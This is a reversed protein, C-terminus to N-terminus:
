NWRKRVSLRINRGVADLGSGHMRYRKDLINDLTLAFDWGDYRAWGARIGFIGWGGTGDPDIRSDRVDRASLRDQRSAFIAWGDFSLPGSTYHLTMRGSLPPIRDAPEAVADTLFQEGWTYNLVMRAYLAETFQLDAGIEAGRIDSKTANRSQVVDRGDPTIAGTSVSTIRNKYRLMYVAGDFRFVEGSHRIGIDAQRIKESELDPNPINFRNGPREGLTGLDFVNPARFGFGANAVMQWTDALDFILGIDGSADTTTVNAASTAATAALGVDVSSVRLGGSLRSRGAVQRDANAFLAAQRVTSGDPFRSQIDTVQGSVTSEEIRQSRVTDDYFEVGAVWSGVGSARSASAVAGFLDSRNAERRREISQYNRSVRDDVIRQWALDFNWDVGLWANDLQHRAHAFIRQNPAFSFESSSPETQGFGPVLEDVRPTEPQDLYHIDLLWRRDDAPTLSLAARGSWAEYGSPGIREGGGVRRDGTALYEGSVTYAITNTGADLTARINKGLEATDVSAYAEGAYSMTSSAFDPVRTVAQVVGGVADSGYLSTPTGRIVEVREVAAVPVLAFYQTPASRFIANNLRMGDVLHLVASGKLGRVIVAGQGPTTQQLFVGVTESLADTILKGAAVEDGDVLTLAASIDGALEARRTATVTIEDITHESASAVGACVLAPLLSIYLLRRM